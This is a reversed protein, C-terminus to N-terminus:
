PESAFRLEQYAREVAPTTFVGQFVRNLFTDGGTFREQIGNLVVAKRTDELTMKKEVASGVQDLVSRFLEMLKDVYNWDNMIPGHGPVITSAGTNKLRQLTQIWDTLYSGFSYPCPHVILDGTMVTKADPVYIVADGATNGRGLHMIRVERHGLDLDLSSDFTVSPLLLKSGKLELALSGMSAMTALYYERDTQTLPTGDVRKGSDLLGTLQTITDPATKAMQMPYDLLTKEVQQKTFRHSLIVADPYEEKYIHNGALHDYHWHTNVVFRVPKDFSDRIEQIIKKTM